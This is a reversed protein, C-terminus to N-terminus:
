RRELQPGPNEVPSHGQSGYRRLVNVVPGRTGFPANYSVSPPGITKPPSLRLFLSRRAPGQAVAAPAPPQTLHLSASLSHISQAPTTAHTRNPTLPPVALNPSRNPSAPFLYTSLGSYTSSQSYTSSESPTRHLSPTYLPFGAHPPLPGQPPPSATKAPPSPSAHDFSISGDSGARGRLGLDSRITSTSYISAPSDFRPIPDRFPNPFPLPAMSVRPQTRPHNSSSPSRGLVGVSAIQSAALSRAAELGSPHMFERNGNYWASRNSQPPSKTPSDGPSGNVVVLQRPPQAITVSLRKEKGSNSLLGSRSNVSSQSERRSNYSSRPPSNPPLDLEPKGSISGVPKPRTSMVCLSIAYGLVVGSIVWCGIFVIYNLDRCTEESGLDRCPFGSNFLTFVVASGIHLILLLLVRAFDMWLRFPVVIMLYLLIATFGHTALLSLMIARQFVAYYHWERAIIVAFIIAWGLCLFVLVAFLIIRARRFVDWADM